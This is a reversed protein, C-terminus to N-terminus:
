AVKFAENGCNLCAKLGKDPSFSLPSFLAACAACKLMPLDIASVMRDGAALHRRM